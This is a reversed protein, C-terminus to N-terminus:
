PMRATASWPSRSWDRRVRLRCCSVDPRTFTSTAVSTAARPPDVTSSMSRTTRGVRGVLVLRQGVPGSARGRRPAPRTTLSMGRLRWRRMHSSSPWASISTSKTSTRRPSSPLPFERCRRASAAGCCTRTARTVHARRAGGGHTPPEPLPCVHPPSSHRGCRVPSRGGRAPDARGGPGCGTLRVVNSQNPRDNTAANRPTRPRVPRARASAAGVGLGLRPPPRRPGCVLVRDLLDEGATRAPM